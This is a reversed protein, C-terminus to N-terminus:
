EQLTRLWEIIQEVPESTFIPQGAETKLAVDVGDFYDGYVPMPSGHSVLPDRGDIRKIARVLPFKGGNQASLLTLNTPKILLVSHMPGNGQATEGHCVACHDVFIQQGLQSNDAHSPSLSISLFVATLAFKIVPSM